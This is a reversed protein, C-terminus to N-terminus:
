FPPDLQPLISTKKSPTVYILVSMFWIFLSFVSLSPTSPPTTPLSPYTTSHPHPPLLGLAHDLHASLYVDPRYVLESFGTESSFVFNIKLLPSRGPIGGSMFGVSCTQCLTPRKGLPLDNAVFSGRQAAKCSTKVVLLGPCSWTTCTDAGGSSSGNPWGLLVCGSDLRFPM